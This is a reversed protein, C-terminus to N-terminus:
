NLYDSLVSIEFPEVFRAIWCMVMPDEESNLKFYWFGFDYKYQFIFDDEKLFYQIGNRELLWRVHQKLDYDSNGLTYDRFKLPVEVECQNYFDIYVQPLLGQLKYQAEFIQSPKFLNLQM